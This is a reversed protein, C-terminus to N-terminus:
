DVFICKSNLFPTANRTFAEIYNELKFTECKPAKLTGDSIFKCLDNISKKYEEPNNQKWRTLWFGCAKLDKFIFDATNLMLPQRSM